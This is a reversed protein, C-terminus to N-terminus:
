PYHRLHSTGSHGNGAAMHLISNETDPEIAAEMVNLEDLHVENSIAALKDKFATVNGERALTLLEKIQEAKLPSSAM